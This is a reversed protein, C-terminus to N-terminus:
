KTDSTYFISEGIFERIISNSPIWKPTITPYYSLFVSLRKATLYNPSNKPVENLIPIAFEKLVCLEYSLESNFVFDANNQNPYIWKFEGNRVDNWMNLTTEASASRFHYDRVLRRILRLDSISIPTHGDIRYQGLPSIFIKFKSDDYVSPAIKDSLGHIGEIILVQNKELRVPGVFSRTKTVFDFKPFEVSKGKILKSITDDFLKLDLSDISEYDPKGADTLPYNDTKYFDDMSITVPLLGRSRLEIKLRNAFTTKGSSSPGAICIMKIRYAHEEIQDGLHTLQQAHRVECLNIFDLAQGKNVIEHIKAITESKTINLWKNAAILATRFNKEDKFEPIQGGCEYRPYSITFGPAYLNLVYKDLYGTSPVMLTLLYNMFDGCRYVPVKDEDDLYNLLNSKEYFGISSYYEKAESVSIKDYVFPIDKKILAQLANNIETLNRKNFQHGLDSVNCFISRSVSYNFVVRSNPYLKKIVYIILYRLSSEYAVTSEKQTLDLLEITSDKTIKYHLDKIRGNIRCLIYKKENDEILDIVETPNKIEIEKKNIVVKM